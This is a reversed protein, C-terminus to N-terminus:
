EISIQREKSGASGDKLSYGALGSQVWLLLVVAQVVVALAAAASVPLGTPLPPTPAQAM